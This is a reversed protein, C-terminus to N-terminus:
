KGTNVIVGQRNAEAKAIEVRTNREDEVQKQLSKVQETLFTIKDTLTSIQADKTATAVKNQADAQMAAVQADRKAVAVAAAVAANQESADKAKVAVLEAELAALADTQIRASGTEKLLTTFVAERDERIRLKLEAAAERRAIENADALARAQAQLDEIQMATQASEQVLAQLDTAVKLMGAAATDLGKTARALIIQSQNATQKTM